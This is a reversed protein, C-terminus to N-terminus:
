VVSTRGCSHFNQAGHWAEWGPSGVIPPPAWLSDPKSPWHPKIVLIGYSQPFCFSWEQLSCALDWAHWSGPFFDTVKYFVPGSRGALIPPNDASPLTARAWQPFLSVPLLLESSYQNTHAKMSTAMEEGLGLGVWCGTPEVAPIGWVLCGVPLFCLGLWWCVPQKFDEQAHGQQGSPCSWSWGSALLFCMNGAPLRCLVRLWM